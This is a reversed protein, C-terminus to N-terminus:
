LEEYTILGAKWKWYKLNTTEIIRFGDRYDTGCGGFEGNPGVQAHVISQQGGDVHALYEVTKIDLRPKM